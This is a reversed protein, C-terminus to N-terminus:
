VFHVNERGSTRWCTNVRPDILLITSPQIRDALYPGLWVLRGAVVGEQVLQEFLPAM